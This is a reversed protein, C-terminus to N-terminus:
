YPIFYFEYKIALYFFYVTKEARHDGREVCLASHMSWIEGMPLFVQEFMFYFMGKAGVFCSRLFYCEKKIKHPGCSM